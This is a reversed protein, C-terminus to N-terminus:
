QNEDEMEASNHYVQTMITMNMAYIQCKTNKTHGSGGIYKLHPNMGQTTQLNELIKELEKLHLFNAKSLSKKYRIHVCINAQQPPTSM